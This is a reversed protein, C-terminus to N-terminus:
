SQASFIEKYADIVPNLETDFKEIRENARALATDILEKMATARKKIGEDNVDVIPLVLFGRALDWNYVQAIPWKKSKLAADLEGAFFEIEYPAVEGRFKFTMEFAYGYRTVTKVFSFVDLEM